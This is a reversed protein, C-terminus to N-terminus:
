LNINNVLGNTKPLLITSSSNKIQQIIPHYINIEKNEFNNNYIISVVIEDLYSISLINPIDFAVLVSLDQDVTSDFLIKCMDGYHDPTNTIDREPQIFDVTLGSCCGGNMFSTTTGFEKVKNKNVLFDICDVYLQCKGSWINKNLLNSRNFDYIPVIIANYSNNSIKVDFNPPVFPLKKKGSIVKPPRENTSM